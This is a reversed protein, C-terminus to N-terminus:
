VGYPVILMSSGDFTIEVFDVDLWANIVSKPITMAGFCGDHINRKSLKRVFKKM